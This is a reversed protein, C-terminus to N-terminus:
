EKTEQLIQRIQPELSPADHKVVYWLIELDIGFYEHVLRNRMGAMKKWPVGSYKHMLTGSLNKTAEGIIEVARVVAYITKRDKEFDESRMDKTFKRIDEIAELIDLLYTEQDRMTM